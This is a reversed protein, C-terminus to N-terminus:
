IYVEPEKNKQWIAFSRKAVDKSLDIQYKNRPKFLFVKCLPCLADNRIQHNHEWHVYVQNEFLGRVSM